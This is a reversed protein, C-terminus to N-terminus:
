QQQPPYHPPYQVVSYSRYCQLQNSSSNPHCHGRCYQCSPFNDWSEWQLSLFSDLGCENGNGNNADERRLPLYQLKRWTSCTPGPLDTVSASPPFALVQHGPVSLCSIPIYANFIGTFNQDTSCNLLTFKETMATHCLFDYSIHFLQSSNSSITFNLLRRPLCGNADYIRFRLRGYNIEQIPFLGSSSSLQIMTKNKFCSVEFQPHGCHPPDDRLRFPFKIFPGDDGCRSIPCDTGHGDAAAKSPVVNIATAFVIILLLFLPRLLLSDINMEEKPLAM